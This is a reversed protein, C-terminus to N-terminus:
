AFSMGARASRKSKDSKGAQTPDSRTATANVLHCTGHMHSRRGKFYLASHWSASVTLDQLDYIHSAQGNPMQESDEELLTRQKKMMM